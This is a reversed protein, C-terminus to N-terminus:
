FPRSFDSIAHARNVIISENDGVLDLAKVKADSNSIADVEFTKRTIKGTTKNTITTDVLHRM